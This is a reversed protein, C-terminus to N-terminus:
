MHGDWLFDYLFQTEYQKEWWHFRVTEWVISNGETFHKEYKYKKEFEVLDNNYKVPHKLIFILDAFKFIATWLHKCNNFM